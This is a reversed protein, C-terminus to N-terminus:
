RGKVRRITVRGDSLEWGVGDDRMLGMWRSSTTRELFELDVSFYTRGICKLSHLRMDQEAWEMLRAKHRDVSRKVRQFKVYNRHILSDLIANIKSDKLRYHRRLALAEALQSRRCATDLVLYGVIEQLEVSTLPHRPYISRLLHLIAPHYSDPQKVLISLRICFLYAQAAFDDVRKSAVIGERLKRLAAMINSLGKSNSSDPLNNKTLDNTTNVSATADPGDSTQGSGIDLSSLRRLLENHEGAASCFSMYKEIISNYYKEQTKLDLLRLCRDDAANAM